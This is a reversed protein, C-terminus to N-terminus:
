FHVNNSDVIYRERQRTQKVPQTGLDVNLRRKGSRDNHGLLATQKTIVRDPSAPRSLLDAGV